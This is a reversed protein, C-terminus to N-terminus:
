KRKEKRQQLKLLIRISVANNHQDFGVAKTIGAEYLRDVASFADTPPDGWSLGGTVYVDLPGIRICAFERDDRINRLLDFDEYLKRAQAYREEKGFKEVAQGEIYEKPWKRLPTRELREIVKTGRSWKPEAGHPITLAAVLMDAGM